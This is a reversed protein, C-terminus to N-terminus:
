IAFDFAQDSGSDPVLRSSAVVAFRNLGLCMIWLRGNDPVDAFLTRFRQTKRYPREPYHHQRESPRLTPSYM